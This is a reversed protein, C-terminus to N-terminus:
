RSGLPYPYTGSHGARLFEFGVVDVIIENVGEDTFQPISNFFHTHSIEEVSGFRVPAYSICTKGEMTCSIIEASYHVGVVPVEALDLVVKKILLVLCYRPDAIRLESPRPTIM